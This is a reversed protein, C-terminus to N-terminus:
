CQRLSWLTQKWCDASLNYRDSHKLKSRCRIKHDRWIIWWLRIVPGLAKSLHLEHSNACWSELKANHSKQSINFLSCHLVITDKKERLSLATRSKQRKMLLSHTFLSFEDKKEKPPARPSPKTRGKFDHQLHKQWSTWSIECSNCRTKMKISWLVTCCYLRM